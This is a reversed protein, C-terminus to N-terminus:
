RTCFSLCQTDKPDSYLYEQEWTYKEGKVVFLTGNHWQWWKSLTSSHVPTRAQNKVSVSQDTSPHQTSAIKAPTAQCINKGKTTKSPLPGPKQKQRQSSLNSGQCRILKFTSCHNHWKTWNHWSGRMKNQGYWSVCPQDPSGDM